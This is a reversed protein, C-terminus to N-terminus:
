LLGLVRSPGQAPRESLYAMLGTLLERYPILARSAMQHLHRRLSAVDGIGAWERSALIQQLFADSVGGAASPLQRSSTSQPPVEDPADKALLDRLLAPFRDPVQLERAAVRAALPELLTEYGLGLGAAIRRLITRLQSAETIAALDTRRLASSGDRLFRGSSAGDTRWSAREATLKRLRDVLIAAAPLPPSDLVSAVRMLLEEYPIGEAEAYTKLRVRLTNLDPIGGKDDTALRIVDVVAPDLSAKGTVPVNESGSEPGPMDQAVIRRLRELFAASVPFPPNDLSAAVAALLRGYPMGQERALAQLEARLTKLDPIRGRGEAWRFVDEVAQGLSGASEASVEDMPSAMGPQDQAIVRRLRELLATSVPLPPRDLNASLAALFRGYPIGQKRAVSQLETRLTKLDPIRGRGEAWRFVDEVAMDVSGASGASVEDMRSALGPQDQAIVKRLRERFAASVPVPPRDLSAAVAAILRGYPIAKRQALSQLHTRLTPHDALAESSLYVERLTGEDLVGQSATRTRAEATDPVRLIDEAYIKRLLEIFRSSLPLPPMAVSELIRRLLDEYRIHHKLGMRRLHMRLFAENTIANLDTSTYIELTIEDVSRKVRIDTQNIPRMKRQTELYVNSVWDLLEKKDPVAREFFFRIDPSSLNDLIRRRVRESRGLDLIADELSPLEEMVLGRFLRVLETLMSRSRYRELHGTLLFSRFEAIGESHIATTDGSQVSTSPEAGMEPRGQQPSPGPTRVPMRDPSPRGWRGEKTHLTRFRQFVDSLGTFPTAKQLLSLPNRPDPAQMRTGKETTETELLDSLLIYRIADRSAERGLAHASLRIAAEVLRLADADTLTSWTPHVKKWLPVLDKTEVHGLWRRIKVPDHRLSDFLPRLSRLDGRLLRAAVQRISTGQSPAWWPLRGHHVFYELLRLDRTRPDVDLMRAVSPLRGQSALQRHLEDLVRRILTDGLEDIDIVGVDLEIRDIRIHLDEPILESLLRDLDEFLSSSQLESIRRSFGPYSQEDPIDFAFVQRHIIHKGSM